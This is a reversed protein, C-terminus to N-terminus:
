RRDGSRPPRGQNGVGPHEGGLGPPNDGLGPTPGWGPPTRTPTGGGPLVPRDPVPSPLVPLVPALTPTPSATATPTPSPTPTWTPTASSTPSATLTVTTTPTATPSPTLAPPATVTVPPRGGSGAPQEGPQAVRARISRSRQIVAELQATETAAARAQAQISLAEQELALNTIREQLPDSVAPGALELARELEASSEELARPYVQDRELLAAFEDVRRAALDVRLSPEDAQAAIALQVREVARKVPYLPEGPLSDASAIAAGGALMVLVAFAAAALALWRTTRVILPAHRQGRGAGAALEAMLRAEIREVAQDSLTIHPARALRRAVEVLPDDDEPGRPPLNHTGPPIARDLRRRLDDSYKPSEPIM